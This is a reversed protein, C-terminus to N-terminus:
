CVKKQGMLGLVEEWLGVSGMTTLGIVNPSCAAVAWYGAGIEGRLQEKEWGCYGDFFRFEGVGVVNRKVMEAACGVSEKTGCYLGKMVEDFAGNNRVGEGGSVLFLGEELPGGFFLTRDSFTGSADLVNSRMEKISMLSPRNLIIGTPGVPGTSLLLVVTREFIHVGDLKKTAILLCGKEPEHIAHAWKDGLSVSSLQNVMTNSDNTPLSEQSSVAQEGAVLRARFSRWDADLFMNEEDGSSPSPSNSKSQCCTTTSYTGTKRFLFNSSSRKPQAFIRSKISPIVIELSKTFSNSSLFCAEMKRSEKFLIITILALNQNKPRGTGRHVGNLEDLPMRPQTLSVGRHIGNVDILQM